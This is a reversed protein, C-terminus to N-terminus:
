PAPPVPLGFATSLFIAMQARTVQQAPCFNGNGCGATVGRNVLEHIWRAFPSTCPVDGFLPTTCAPPAYGPGEVTALLFVAMQERTVKGNPCYNGGGCGATVGRRVLEEIWPALPNSCPVDAFSPTTCAPPDYSPGEAAALLFVAMQGRSVVTAPCFNGSGCGGTVGANEIAEVFRWAWFDPAVDLFTHYAHVACQKDVPFIAAGRGDKKLLASMTADDPDPPTHHDFGQTHGLEHTMMERFNTAGICQAGDNVLVFPSLAPHWPMGNYQRTTNPDFFVGGFALTGCCVAGTDCAALDPLEECPDDFTVEPLDLEIASGDGCAAGAARTGGYQLRLVSDPHNRWAAAGQQVASVGGDAIGDQGPTTAWITVDTGTEYGFWRVPRGDTHQVFACVAPLSAPATATDVATASTATAPATLAAIEQVPSAEVRRRDWAAGRAAERLHPLLADRLYVGVPETAGPLAGALSKPAGESTEASTEASTEPSTESSTAAQAEATVLSLEAAQRLPRLLAEGDPGQVEELLGHSLMRSRWRGRHEGPAPALFLVYRGGELYRPAGAVVAGRGAAVGGPEAVEFVTGVARGATQELLLFRTVTVPMAAGEQSAEGWSELAEAYVVAASVRALAGLDRPPAVSAAGAPRPLGPLLLLAFLAPVAFRLSRPRTTM